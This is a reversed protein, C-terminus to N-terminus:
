TLNSVATPGSPPRISGQIAKSLLAEKIKDFLLLRTGQEEALASLTTATGSIRGRFLDALADGSANPILAKRVLANGWVMGPTMPDLRQRPTMFEIHPTRSVHMKRTRRM